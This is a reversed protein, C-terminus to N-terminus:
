ATKSRIKRMVESVIPQAAAETLDFSGCDTVIRLTKRSSDYLVQCQRCHALHSELQSRVEAAVDNDLYNGIENIFDACSIM